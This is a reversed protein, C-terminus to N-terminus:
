IKEMNYLDRKGSVSYTTLHNFNDFDHYIDFLFL